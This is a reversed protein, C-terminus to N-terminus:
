PGSSKAQLAVELQKLAAVEKRWKKFCVVIVISAAVAVVLEILLVTNWIDSSQQLQRVHWEAEMLEDHNGALAAQMSTLLVPVWLCKITAMGLKAKIGM